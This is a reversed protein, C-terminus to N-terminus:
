SKLERLKGRAAEISHRVALTEVNKSLGTATTERAVVVWDANYPNDIPLQEILIIETPHLKM